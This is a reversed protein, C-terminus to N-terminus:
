RNQMESDKPFPSRSEPNVPRGADMKRADSGLGPLSGAADKKEPPPDFRIVPQARMADDLNLNLPKRPEDEKPAPAQAAAPAAALLLAILALRM